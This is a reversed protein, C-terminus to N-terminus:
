VLLSLTSLQMVAHLSSNPRRVVICWDVLLRRLPLLPLPPPPQKAATRCCYCRPPPACRVPPLATAAARLSRHRRCRPPPACRLPPLRHVPRSCPPHHDAACSLLTACCSSPSLCHSLWSPSLYRWSEIEKKHCLNIHIIIYWNTPYFCSNIHIPIM